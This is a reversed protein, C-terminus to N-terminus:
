GAWRRFILTANQGGMGFSSSLVTDVKAERMANPVYDLDCEPDPFEYNITPPIKNDRIALVSAVAEVGGAAAASHGVMSKISSVPVDYAAEGFALKIAATESKDNYPTGTGHANIWDIEEPAVEATQLARKLALSQGEADPAADDAADFSWGQGIYEALITAGRELAHEESELVLVGAGEGLVFGDRKADFPRSAKEPTDNYGKSLAGMLGMTAVAVPTIIAETGGALLVDASGSRIMNFAHGLADTASACASNISTNPGRLGLQRGVRGASMHPGLRPILLPDVRNPGREDIITEQRGMEFVGGTSALVVGMETALEADPELRASVLAEKAAKLAIQAFRGSRRATKHDMVELPDFGKIEGAVQVAHRSPDFHTIRTIGSKGALINRWFTEADNGVPTVAGIGTIVVRRLERRSGNSSGAV